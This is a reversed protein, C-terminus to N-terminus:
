WLHKMTTPQPWSSTLSSTSRWHWQIANLVAMCTLCSPTSPCFHLRCSTCSLLCFRSWITQKSCVQSMSLCLLVSITSGISLGPCFSWALCLLSKLLFPRPGCRRHVSVCFLHDVQGVQELCIQLARCDQRRSAVDKWSVYWVNPIFSSILVFSHSKQLFLPNIYVELFFIKGISIRPQAM